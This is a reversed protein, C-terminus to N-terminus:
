MLEYWAFSKACDPERRCYEMYRTTVSNDRLNSLMKQWFYSPNASVASM